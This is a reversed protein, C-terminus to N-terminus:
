FYQTKMNLIFTKYPFSFMYKSLNQFQRKEWHSINRDIAYNKELININIIDFYTYIYLM